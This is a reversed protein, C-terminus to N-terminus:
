LVVHMFQLWPSGRLYSVTCDAIPSKWNSLSGVMNTDATADDVATPVNSVRVGHQTCADVDVQDYGAGQLYPDTLGISSATLRALCMGNHAIFKLSKPLSEVLESDIRGTIAVSDFTRYAAVVGDFAGSKCEKIFEERSTSGPVVLDAIKSLADFEEKASGFSHDADTVYALHPRYINM